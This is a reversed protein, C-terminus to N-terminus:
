AGDQKKHKVKRSYSGKGKAPVFVKQATDMTVLVRDSKKLERVSKRRIKIKEKM